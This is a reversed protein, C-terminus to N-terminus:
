LSRGWYQGVKDMTDGDLGVKKDLLFVTSKQEIKKIVERGTAKAVTLTRSGGGGSM